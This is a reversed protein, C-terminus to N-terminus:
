QLTVSVFTAPQEAFFNCHLFNELFLNSGGKVQSQEEEKVEIRLDVHTGEPFRYTRKQEDYQVPAGLDRLCDILNYVTRESVELRNALEKPCGTSKRRVLDILRNLRFFQDAIKM